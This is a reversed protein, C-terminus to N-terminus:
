STEIMVFSEQIDSLYGFRTTQHVCHVFLSEDHRQVQLVRALRARQDVAEPRRHIEVLHRGGQGELVRLENGPEAPPPLFHEQIALPIINGGLHAAGDLPRASRPHRGARYVRPRARRDDLRGRLRPGPGENPGDRHQGAKGVGIEALHSHVGGRLSLDQAQGLQGNRAPHVADDAGGLFGREQPAFADLGREDRRADTEALRAPRALVLFAGRARVLGPGGAGVVDDHASADELGRVRHFGDAVDQLSSM